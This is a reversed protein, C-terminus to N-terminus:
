ARESSESLPSARRSSFSLGILAADDAYSLAQVESTLQKIAENVTETMVVSFLLTSLPDGQPLEDRTASPKEATSKNIVTPRALLNSVVDLWQPWHPCLKHLVTLCHDRHISCFANKFDLSAVVHDPNGQLRARISMTM